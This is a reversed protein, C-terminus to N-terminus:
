SQQSIQPSDPQSLGRKENIRAIEKEMIDGFSNEDIELSQEASVSKDAFADFVAQKQELTDTIKEDVSDECLLRFVLVNRSQGMRYARSIAQNETSPKFQPECIVVVSASQINLGTGGSQIQALLVSGAPAADFEDLIEQRRQPPVSGNIPNLCKDGLLMYIKRITDLFFSFVIVKRNDKEADEVIELLRNAKSSNKLDKVNWSVRRAEVYKKQLVANEYLEEEESNMECWEESQILEPLETLVDDRKRRYYVPAIKLRFQPASSMFAFGKIQNALDPQLISILSIMEDVDNELATGTMFLIGEARKCLRKTNVTRKAEPNKIYHAEDVVLLDFKFTEDMKFFATTEYTTIGVGGEKIWTKLASDRDDGHIKIANLESHKTIERRWNSLVSAPCIVLFHTAGGNKLSVMAAIAQITKGLGMEDGLLVKKQHLIYKVGWEQYRRLSCKLGDLNLPQQKIDLALDEPLGYVVDDTGLLGPCIDELINFFTVTNKDFDEWADVADTSLIKNVDNLLSTVETNYSERLLQELSVYANIAAEKRKKSVFLWGLTKTAPLLNEISLTIKSYYDDLLTKSTKSYPLCNKFISIATVLKTTFENRSDISLRIKIERRIKESFEDVKRKITYATDESIGNVDAIDYVSVSRLDGFTEFGNETLAKVRIGRRDRNLEEVSVTNLIALVENDTYADAAKKVEDRLAISLGKAEKLSAIYTEHTRIIKKADKASFDRAM